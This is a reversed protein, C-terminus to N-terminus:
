GPHFSGAIADSVRDHRPRSDFGKRVAESARFIPIPPLLHAVDMAVAQGVKRERALKMVVHDSRTTGFRVVNKWFRTPDRTPHRSRVVRVAHDLQEPDLVVAVLLSRCSGTRHLEKMVLVMVPRAKASRKDAPAQAGACDARTCALGM